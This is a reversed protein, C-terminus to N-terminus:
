GKSPQGIVIAQNGRLEKRPVLICRLRAPDAIVASLQEM